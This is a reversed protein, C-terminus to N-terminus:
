RGPGVQIQGNSFSIDPRVNEICCRSVDLLLDAVGRHPRVLLWDDGDHQPHSHYERVGRLCLFPRGTRPHNPQVVRTRRRAVDIMFGAPARENPLLENWNGPVRFSVSPAVIDYDELAIRLAIPMATISHVDHFQARRFRYRQRQFMQPILFRAPATPVLLVDIHPANVHLVYCGRAELLERQRQLNEVEAAFKARSVERDVQM